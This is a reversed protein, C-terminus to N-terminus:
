EASSLGGRFTADDPDYSRNKIKIGVIMDPVATALTALNQIYIPYILHHCQSSLSDKIPTTLTM